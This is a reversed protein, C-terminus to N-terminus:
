EHAVAEPAEKPAVLALPLSDAGKLTKRSLLGGSGGMWTQGVMQGCDDRTVAAVPEHALRLINSIRDTM